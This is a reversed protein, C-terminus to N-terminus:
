MTFLSMLMFVLMLAIAALMGPSTLVAAIRKGRSIKIKAKKASFCFINAIFLVVGLLAVIVQAGAYGLYLVSDEGFNLLYLPLVGSIMNFTMHFLYVFLLSGSRFYIYALLAGLGAAYFFQTFNGHFLGFMVASIIICTMEGYPRLRDILLKRFFYEELFPAVLGVMLTTMGLDTSTLMTEVEGGAENGTVGNWLALLGSGILNGVFGIALGIAIYKLFRVVGLKEGETEDTPVTRLICTAALIGAALTLENFVLMYSDYFPMASYGFAELVGFIIQILMMFGFWVALLVFMSWGIRNMTMKMKKNQMYSQMPDNVMIM